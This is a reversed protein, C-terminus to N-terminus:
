STKRTKELVDPEVPTLKTIYNNTVQMEYKEGAIIKSPPCIYSGVWKRDRIFGGNEKDFGEFWIISHNQVRGTNRNKKSRIESKIITIVM